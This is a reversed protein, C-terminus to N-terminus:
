VNDAVGSNAQQRISDSADTNLVGGDVGSECVATATSPVRAFELVDPAVDLCASHGSESGCERDPINFGGDM